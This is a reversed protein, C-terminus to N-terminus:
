KQMGGEGWMFISYMTCENNMTNKKRKPKIKLNETQNRYTYNIFTILIIHIILIPIYHDNSHPHVSHFVLNFFRRFIVFIFCGFNVNVNFVSHYAFSINSAVYLLLLFM